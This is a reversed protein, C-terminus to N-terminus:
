NALRTIQLRPAGFNLLLGVRYGSAILYSLGHVYHVDQLEAYAKIELMVGQIIFDVREKGVNFDRYVVDIWVERSFELGQAQM